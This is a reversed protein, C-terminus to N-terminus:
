GLWLASLRAAPLLMRKAVERYRQASCRSDLVANFSSTAGCMTPLQVYQRTLFPDMQRLESSFADVLQRLSDFVLQELTHVGLRLTAIVAFSTFALTHFRAGTFALSTQSSIEM